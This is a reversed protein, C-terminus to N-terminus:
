GRKAKNAVEAALSEVSKGRGALSAWRTPMTARAEALQAESFNRENRTALKAGLTPGEFGLAQATRWLSHVNRVVARVDKGEWLDVTQHFTDSAPM